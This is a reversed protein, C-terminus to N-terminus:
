RIIRRILKVGLYLALLTGLIPLATSVSEDIQDTMGTTLPSMDIAVARASDAIMVLVLAVLLPLFRSVRALKQKM